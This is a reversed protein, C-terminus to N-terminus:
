YLINKMKWEWVYTENTSTSVYKWKYREDKGDWRDMLKESTRGTEELDLISEKEGNRTQRM